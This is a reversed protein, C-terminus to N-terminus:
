TTPLNGSQEWDFWHRKEPPIQELFWEVDEPMAELASWHEPTIGKSNTASLGVHETVRGDSWAVFVPANKSAPDEGPKPKGGYAYGIAARLRDHKVLLSGKGTLTEEGAKCSWYGVPWIEDQRTRDRRQIYAKRDDAKKASTQKFCAYCLGLAAAKGTGCGMKLAKGCSSCSRLPPAKGEKRLEYRKQRERQMALRTEREGM